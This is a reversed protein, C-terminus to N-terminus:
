EMARKVLALVIRILLKVAGLTQGATPAALGLYARLLTVGDVLPQSGFTAADSGINPVLPAPPPVHADIVAPAGAPLEAFAGSADVTGLYRKAQYVYSVLGRHAVGAATMEAQLQEQDIEVVTIDIGGHFLDAM